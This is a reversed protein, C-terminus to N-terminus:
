TTHGERALELWYLLHLQGPHNLLHCESTYATFYLAHTMPTTSQEYRLYHMPKQPCELPQLPPPRSIRGLYMYAKYREPQLYSSV